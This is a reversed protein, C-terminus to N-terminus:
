QYKGGRWMLWYTCFLFESAITRTQLSIPDVLAFFDKGRFVREALIVGNDTQYLRSSIEYVEGDTRFTGTLFRPIGDTRASKIQEHLHFVDENWGISMYPFQHLDEGVADFIGYQLWSLSSDRSEDTFPFIALKALYNENFVEHIEKEGFENIVTVSRTMAQLNDSGKFVRPYALVGVLIALVAIVVDSTKLKRKAPKTATKKSTQAVLASGTRKLGEPTVSYNWSLILSVIFGISLLVLVLKLTWDPLGFPETIISIFEIIVYATAM